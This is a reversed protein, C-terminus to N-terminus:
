TKVSFDPVLEEGVSGILFKIGHPFSALLTVRPNRM